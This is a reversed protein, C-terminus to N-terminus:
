KPPPLSQGRQDQCLCTIQELTHDPDAHVAISSGTQTELDHLAARKSNQVLICVEPAVTVDVKHVRQQHAALQIVRMVELIMSETSKVLGSGQCNKCETYISQRISSRQRQRTMEILGFQSMRLIRAREKHKKLANRLCREVERKHREERLDIFDCVVLGGLDRLRLQRAIEEAAEMDVRFASEEADSVSRFTGSNVDIAVMAETQEIVISGGSALRVKRTNIQEIAEEIGYHHFIPATGTYVTVMDPTRPLAIRLFERAKAATEESDVVIRKFDSTLSDRMTRIVLDSEQYLEAPAKTKRVRDAIIKWLRHLYNLDRQLERKTQGLGATRLIFGMGEPLDLQNLVDRMSRRDADDEIKRSVGLRKMGPMMVLFRGPISLYATLTPGKTGVGEKIVQVLVEQGRRFCKHIPPRDRRPIKRGVDEAAGKGDPFYQPHVDSIHLFGNKAQGFDVFVAQISREINTVVGKYISGVHSEASQREIYLEELRGAELVAIRCEEGQATNIIMEYEGPSTSPAVTSPADATKRTKAKAPPKDDKKTQRNRQKAAPQRSPTPKDKPAPEARKPTRKQATKRSSIPDTKKVRTPPAIKQDLPVPEDMLGVGFDDSAAVATSLGAAFDEEAARRPGAQRRTAPRAEPYRDAPDQPHIKATPKTTSEATGAVLQRTKSTAKQTKASATTSKKKASRRSPTSKPPAKAKTNSSASHKKGAIKKKANPAIADAPAKPRAPPPQTKSTGTSAGATKKKRSTRKGRRVQATANKTPARSDGPTASEVAM